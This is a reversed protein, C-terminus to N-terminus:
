EESCHAHKVNCHSRKSRPVPELSVPKLLQPTRAWSSHSTPELACAWYNHCMPKAARHCTFDSRGLGPSLGTDGASAPPNKIVSGGPFNLIKNQNELAAMVSYWLNPPNFCWFNMTEYNQLGSTWLWPALQAMGERIARPSADEKGRWGKNEGAIRPM